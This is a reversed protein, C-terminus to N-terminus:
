KKEKGRRRQTQLHEVCKNRKGAEKEWNKKYPGIMTEKQNIKTKKEDCKM